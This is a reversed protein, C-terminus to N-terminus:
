YINFGTLDVTTVAYTTNDGNQVAISNMATNIQTTLAGLDDTGANWQTAVFSVIVLAGNIGCFIPSGSDGPIIMPDTGTYRQYARRSDTVDYFPNSARYNVPQVWGHDNAGTYINYLRSWCPLDTGLSTIPYSSNVALTTDPMYTRWNAPLLKALTGTWITSSYYILSDIGIARNNATINSPSHTAGLGTIYHHPTLWVRNKYHDALLLDDLLDLPLSAFGSKGQARVFCGTNIGSVQDYGNAYACQASRGATVGALASIQQDYLYKRLSGIARSTIKTYFVSSGQIYLTSTLERTGTKGSVAITCVGDSIYSVIGFRDVSCVAPTKSYFYVTNNAATVLNVDYVYASSSTTNTDYTLDKVTVSGSTAGSLPKLALVNTPVFDDSSTYGNYTSKPSLSHSINM